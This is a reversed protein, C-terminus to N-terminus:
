RSPAMPRRGLAMRARAEADAKLLGLSMRRILSVGPAVRAWYWRFRRRATADTTMVRTETRFISEVETVPDARLTWAIKVYGPERFREFEQPPLGRFVVNPLWPQTVAGIVIERGPREALVRWGLALTSDLLGTPGSPKEPRSGLLLQRGAFIARVIRSEMLNTDAAAALTIPAPAMVHVHHREVVEYDPVFRDLLEDAEEPAPAAPSGYRYWTRAVIAAYAATSLGLAGAILRTSRNLSTATM